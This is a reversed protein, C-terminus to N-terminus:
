ALIGVIGIQAAFELRPGGICPDILFEWVVKVFIAVHTLSSFELFTGLFYELILIHSPPRPFYPM